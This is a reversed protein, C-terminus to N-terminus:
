YVRRHLWWRIYGQDSPQLEPMNRHRERVKHGEISM